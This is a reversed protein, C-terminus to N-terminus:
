AFAPKVMDAWADKYVFFNVGDAGNERVLDATQGMLPDGIYIIPALEKEAGIVARAMATEHGVAEPPVATRIHAISRSLVADALGTWRLILEMATKEEPADELGLEEPIMMLEWNLCAIGPRDPYNRYIMPAYVDMFPLLDEYSQGVLPALSPTFIYVGMKLGAGHIIESLDRFHETACVRRFRFWDLIGAHQTLWEFIGIPHALWAPKRSSGAGKSMVLAYLARVDKRIADFDFGLEAAKKESHASFDTFFAQIGSGPSAFRCGDVLIGDIGETAAMKRYSERNQERIAPSNPSGSGFWIQPKGTIDLAKHSDDDKFAGLGFAGGCLWSRMGAEKVAAITAEGGAVVIDFGMEKMAAATAKPDDGGFGHMWYTRKKMSAEKADASGSQAMVRGGAMGAATGAALGLGLFSRRGIANDAEKSM